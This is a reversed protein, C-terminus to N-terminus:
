QETVYTVYSEYRGDSMKVRYTVRFLEDTGPFRTVTAGYADYLAYADHVADVNKIPSNAIWTRIDSTNNLARLRGLESSAATTAANREAAARAHRLSNPFLGMVAIIGIGLIGVAILVELLTFGQKRSYTKNKM